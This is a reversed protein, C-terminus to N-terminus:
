RLNKLRSTLEAHTMQGAPVSVEVADLDEVSLDWMQLAAQITLLHNRDAVSMKPEDPDALLVELRETAARLQRIGAIAIQEQFRLALPSAAALLKEFVDRSLELAVTPQAAVVSASRPSRDVLAMQGVMAGPGLTTLTRPGDDDNKVVQVAGSAVLFCSQGHTGQQCLLDGEAYQRATVVSMLLKLEADPYDKLSELARLNLQAM